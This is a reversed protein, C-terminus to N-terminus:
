CLGALVQGQSALRDCLEMCVYTRWNVGVATHQNYGQLMLLGFCKQKFLPLFGSSGSSVWIHFWSHPSFEPPLEPHPLAVWWMLLVVTSM